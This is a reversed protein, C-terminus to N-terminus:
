HWIDGTNGLSEQNKNLVSFSRSRQRLHEWVNLFGCGLQQQRTEM